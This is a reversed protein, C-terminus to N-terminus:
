RQVTARKKHQKLIGVVYDFSFGNIRAFKQLESTWLKHDSSIEKYVDLYHQVMNEYSESKEFPQITQEDINRGKDKSFQEYFLTRQNPTFRAFMYRLSTTDDLPQVNPPSIPSELTQQHNSQLDTVLDQFATKGTTSISPENQEPNENNTELREFKKQNKLPPSQPSWVIGSDGTNIRNRMMEENRYQDNKSDNKYQENKFQDNAKFHDRPMVNEQRHDRYPHILCKNGGLRIFKKKLLARTRYESKLHLYAFGKNFEGNIRSQNPLDFKKVERQTIQSLTTFIRERDLHRPLNTLFVARSTQHYDLETETYRSQQMHQAHTQEQSASQQNMHSQEFVNTASSSTSYMTDRRMQEHGFAEM